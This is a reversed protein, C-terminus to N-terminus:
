NTTKWCIIHDSGVCREHQRRQEATTTTPEHARGICHPQQVFSHSGRQDLPKVTVARASNTPSTYWLVCRQERRCSCRGCRVSCGSRRSRCCWCRQGDSHGTIQNRIQFPCAYYSVWKVLGVKLRVYPVFAIPCTRQIRAAHQFSWRHVGCGVWGANWVQEGCSRCM